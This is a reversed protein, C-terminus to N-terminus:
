QAAEPPDASKGGFMQRAVGLGFKQMIAQQRQFQQFQKFQEPSLIRGARALVRNNYDDMWQLQRAYNQETVMGANLGQTSDMPLIPPSAAKEEKMVQFLEAMQRDELPMNVAAM